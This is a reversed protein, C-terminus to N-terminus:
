EGDSKPGIVLHHENFVGLSNYQSDQIQMSYGDTMPFVGSANWIVQVGAERQYAAKNLVEKLLARIESNTRKRTRPHPIEQESAKTPTAEIADTNESALDIHKQGSIQAETNTLPKEADVRVEDEVGAM